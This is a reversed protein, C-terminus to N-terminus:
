QSGLNKKTVEVSIYKICKIISLYIFSVILGICFNGLAVLITNQGLFYLEKLNFVSLFPFMIIDSIIFVIFFSLPLYALKRPTTENKFMIANMIFLTLIIPILYRQLWRLLDKAYDPNEFHFAIFLGAAFMLFLMLILFIKKYDVTKSKIMAAISLVMFYFIVFLIPYFVITNSQFNFFWIVFFGLIFTQIFGVSGYFFYKSTYNFTLKLVMYLLFPVGLPILIILFLRIITEITLRSISKSIFIDNIFSLLIMIFFMSIIPFGIIGNWFIFEFFPMKTEKAEKQFVKEISEIYKKMRDVKSKIFRYEISFHMIKLFTIKGNTQDYFLLM